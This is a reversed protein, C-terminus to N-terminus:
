SRTLSPKKYTLFKFYLLKLLLLFSVFITLPILGYKQFFTKQKDNLKITTDFIERKYITTRKSETGDPYLVSTIGTNTMRLIPINFELSRWKSLFLHQLPESTNGYWSDNTLNILFHPPSKVQNLYTRIFKSFLIEYCIASTFKIKNHTEFLTYKNGKAFYSINHIMKSLLKNAAGFPLTEGFPILKIKNYTDKLIIKNLDDNIYSFHFTSNYQTEFFDNRDNGTSDYGGIFLESGTKIIINKFVKSILQPYKKLSPSYQVTPYATEPWLILDPNFGNNTTSLKTYIERVSEFPKLSGRESELKLFNGINPQVFRINIQKNSNKSDLILPYSVTIGLLLISSSILLYDIKKYKIFEIASIIIWFSIFSYFPAGAIPAFTLYPALHLWPHGVHAPFHQPTYYELVTLIFALTISMLNQYKIFFKKPMDWKFIVKTITIFILFYPVIIISFFLGILWSIPSPISGFIHITDPIWYYGLSCYGIAFSIVYFFDKKLSVSQINKFISLNYFLLGIGILQPGWFSPLFKMPFSSAYLIGGILCLLYSYLNKYKM